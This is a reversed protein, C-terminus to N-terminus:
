LSSAITILILGVAICFGSMALWPHSHWFFPSGLLLFAWAVFALMITYGSLGTYYRADPSIRSAIFRGVLYMQTVLLVWKWINSTRPNMNKM